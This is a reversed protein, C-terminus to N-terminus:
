EGRLRCGFDDGFEGEVSQEREESYRRRWVAEVTGLFSRAIAPFSVVSSPAEGPTCLAM